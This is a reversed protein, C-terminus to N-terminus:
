WEAAMRERVRLSAARHKPVEPSTHWNALDRSGAHRVETIATILEQKVAAIEQETPADAHVGPLLKQVIGLKVCAHVDFSMPLVTEALTSLENSSRRTVRAAEERAMAQVIVGPDELALIRNAQAGHALLGGSIAQGVILAILPHGARRATAYADVAAALALHIGLVEERRGYAQSPVDVLAVLARQQGAQDATIAERVAAALGWGEDIGLEGRRARPFRNQPDPVVALYRVREQELMTDAVLVSAPLDQAAPVDGALAHFWIRGRGPIAASPHTTQSM